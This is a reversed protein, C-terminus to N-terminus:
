HQLQQLTRYPQRSLMYPLICSSSLVVIASHEVASILLKQGSRLLCLTDLFTFCDAADLNFCDAPLSQLLLRQVFSDALQMYQKSAQLSQTTQAGFGDRDAICHLTLAQVFCDPQQAHCVEVCKLVILNSHM